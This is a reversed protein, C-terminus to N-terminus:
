GARHEFQDVALRQGIADAARASEDVVRDAVRLLDGVREVGRVFGADHM